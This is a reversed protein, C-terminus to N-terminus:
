RVMSGGLGRDGRTTDGQMLLLQPSPELKSHSLTDSSPRGVLLEEVGRRPLALQSERYCTECDLIGRGANAPCGGHAGQTLSM